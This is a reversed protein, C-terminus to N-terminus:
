LESEEGPGCPDGTGIWGGLGPNSAYFGGALSTTSAPLCRLDVAFELEGVLLHQMASGSSAGPLVSAPTGRTTTM